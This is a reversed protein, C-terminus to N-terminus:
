EKRVCVPDLLSAGQQLVARTFDGQQCDCLLRPKSTVIMKPVHEFFYGTKRRLVIRFVTFIAFLLTFFVSLM